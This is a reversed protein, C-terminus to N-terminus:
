VLHASAEHQMHASPLFPFQILSKPVAALECHYLLCGPHAHASPWGLAHPQTTPHPACLGHMCAWGRRSVDYTHNWSNVCSPRRSTCAGVGRWAGSCGAGWSSRLAHSEFAGGAAFPAASSSRATIRVRAPPPCRASSPPPTGPGAQLASPLTCPASCTHKVSKASTKLAINAKLKQKLKKGCSLSLAAPLPDRRRWWSSARQLHLAHSTISHHPRQPAM